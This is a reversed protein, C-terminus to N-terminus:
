CISSQHSDEAISPVRKPLVAPQDTEETISPVRRPLIANSDASSEGSSFARCPISTIVGQGNAQELTTGSGDCPNNPAPDEASGSSFVEEETVSPVRTPFRANSDTSLERHFAAESAPAPSYEPVWSIGGSNNFDCSSIDSYVPIRRPKHGLSSGSNSIDSSSVPRRLRGPAFSGGSHVSTSRNQSNGSSPPQMPPPPLSGNGSPARESTEPPLIPCRSKRSSRIPSCSKWSPTDSHSEGDLRPEEKMMCFKPVFILLLLSMTVVFVVSSQVFFSAVPSVDAFVMIPLFILFVQVMGGVAIAIYKGESYEISLKRARYLQGLALVLAVFNVVVLLALCTTSFATQSSCSGYSENSFNSSGVPQRTWVLPAVRTWIVLITLNALFIAVFPIMVHRVSVQVREYNKCATVIQNIRWIKSYLSAFTISFGTALLWPVAMCAKDCGETTVLSDDIGMPIISLGMVLIGTCIMYLFIEQSARVVRHQNNAFVWISWGISTAAIVAVLTFGYPRINALQNLDPERMVELKVTATLVDEYFCDPYEDDAVTFAILSTTTGALGKPDVTYRLTCNSGAPLKFMGEFEKSLAFGPPLKTVRVSVDMTGSNIIDSEVQLAEGETVELDFVNRDLYVSIAHEVEKQPAFVLLAWDAVDAWRESMVHFLTPRNEGTLTVNMTYSSPQNYPQTQVSNALGTWDANSLNKPSQFITDSVLYTQNRRDSVVTGDVKSYTVRSEENGTLAPYIKEVTSQSIVVINFDEARVLFAFSGKALTGELEELLTSMSAVSIDVGTSAVYTESYTRNQFQGTFYVPAQATILSLGPVATDPYPSTFYALREPNNEPFNPLVFEEEHSSYEAGLVDGFGFPHGVSASLPPYYMWAEGRTGIWAAVYLRDFKRDSSKRELSRGNQHSLWWKDQASKRDVIWPFINSASEILALDSVKTGVFPQRDAMSVHREVRRDKRDDTYGLGAAVTTHSPTLNRAEWDLTQNLRSLDHLGYAIGGNV